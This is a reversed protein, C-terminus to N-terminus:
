MVLWLVYWSEDKMEYPWGFFVTTICEVARATVSVVGRGMKMVIDADMWMVKM